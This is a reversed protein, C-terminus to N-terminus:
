QGLKNIIFTLSVFHNEEKKIHLLPAAPLILHDDEGEGNGM